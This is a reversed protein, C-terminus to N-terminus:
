CAERFVHSLQHPAGVVKQHMSQIEAIWCGPQHDAACPISHQKLFKIISLRAPKEARSFSTAKLFTQMVNAVKALANETLVRADATKMEDVRY